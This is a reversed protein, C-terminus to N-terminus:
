RKRSYFPMKVTQANLTRNRVEVQLLNGPDSYERQILAMAVAKQIYPCMTGSTTKGIKIKNAFVDCDERAIGKDTIELGVRIRDPQTQSLLSDKGIFSEKELKVFKGLSAEYPTIEETLEHGYLPMSAELRLTDRSGLGCPILGFKEGNEILKEWVSITDKPNIYIEYGEEGTYGSASLLCTANGIKVNDVFTYAKDPLVKSDDMIESLIQASKPGQIAILDTKLSINECNTNQSLHSSIWSYDKQVNDANVVIMFSNEEIRYVIVDDIIGGKENCMLSYRLFNNKLNSFDNTLLNQVTNFAGEGTLLIEGMHSVDFLGANERVANHEAIIGTQYRVPLFYGAYPVMKAGSAVHIDYLTTKKEM